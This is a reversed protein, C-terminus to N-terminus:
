LRKGFAGRGNGTRLNCNDRSNLKSIEFQQWSITKYPGAAWERRWAEYTGVPIRAAHQFQAGRRQHLSRMRACDDLIADEVLTPTHEILTMSDGDSDIEVEHRVGTPAVDLLLRKSM